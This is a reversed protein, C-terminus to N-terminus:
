VSFSWTLNGADDVVDFVLGFNAGTPGDSFSCFFHGGASIQSSWETSPPCSGDGNTVQRFWSGDSHEGQWDLKWGIQSQDDTVSLTLTFTASSAADTMACNLVSGQGIKGHMSELAPCNVTGQAGENAQVEQTQNTRGTDVTSNGNGGVAKSGSDSIPTGCGALVVLLAGVAVAGAIGRLRKGLGSWFGFSYNLEHKGEAFNAM